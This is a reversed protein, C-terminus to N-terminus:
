LNPLSKQWEVQAKLGEYVPTTPLYGLVEKAKEINASTHMQDGPRAPGRMIQAEVGTIEQLMEVVENLSVVQGGGVNFTEGLAKERHDLLTLTAKVCDSIFTNSRTQEGTGFLSFPEKTLLAKILIHYAMDPRQRPGYVSFYRLVTLPLGYNAMYARCLHEASCKTVGYPSYPNLEASEDGTADKGYVSSTSIYVLHSIEKAVSAELLRQTALLNCTAYLEFDSWSKMLGAMAAEHFVIDDKQLISVLDDTRLDLEHFSFRSDNMANKLNNEKISRDYYPIFCDIGVVQYGKKLLAESLTSGVFGAAGTVICRNM